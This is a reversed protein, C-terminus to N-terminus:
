VHFVAWEEVRFDIIDLHLFTDDKIDQFTNIIQALDMVM